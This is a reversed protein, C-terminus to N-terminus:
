STDDEALLTRGLPCSELAALLHRRQRRKAYQVVQVLINNTYRPYELRVRDVMKKWLTDCTSQADAIHSRCVERIGSLGLEQALYHDMAVIPDTVLCDAIPHRSVMCGRCSDALCRGIMNHRQQLASQFIEPDSARLLEALIWPGIQYCSWIANCGALLIRFRSIGSAAEEADPHCSKPYVALIGCLLPVMHPALLALAEDQSISSVDAIDRFSHSVVRAIWVRVVLLEPSISQIHNCVLSQELDTRRQGYSVQDVVVRHM